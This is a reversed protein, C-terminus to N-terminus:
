WGGAEPEPEDYGLQPTANAKIWQDLDDARDFDGRAAQRDRDQQAAAVLPDPDLPEAWADVLRDNIGAAVDDIDAQVQPPIGISTNM